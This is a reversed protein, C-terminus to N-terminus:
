KTVRAQQISLFEIEKKAMIERTKKGKVEDCFLRLDIEGLNNQKSDINLVLNEKAEIVVIKIGGTKFFIQAIATKFKSKKKGIFLV